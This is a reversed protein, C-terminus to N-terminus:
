DDSPIERVEIASAEITKRETRRIAGELRDALGVNINLTTETKQGHTKPNRVAAAWKWADMQTKALSAGENSASMVIDLGLYECYEASRERARAYQAAFDPNEDKWRSITTWSPMHPLRAIAIVTEGCELRDCVEDALARDFPMPPRGMTRPSPPMAPPSGFRKKPEVVERYAEPVQLEDLVRRMAQSTPRKPMPM